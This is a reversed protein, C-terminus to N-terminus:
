GAIGPCRPLLGGQPLARHRLETPVFAKNVALGESLLGTLPPVNREQLLQLRKVLRRDIFM